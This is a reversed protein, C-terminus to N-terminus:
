APRPLRRRTLGECSCRFARLCSRRPFPSPSTTRRAAWCCRWRTIWMRKASVVIVPLTRLRGLLEEGSLGPLMLDLLVLDPQERELLLLAETGSYARVCAYGHQELVEQELNGIQIDDEIILSRKTNM